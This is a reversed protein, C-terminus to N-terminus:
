TRYRSKYFRVHKDDDQHILAVIECMAHSYNALESEHGTLKSIVASKEALLELQKRLIEIERNEKNKM